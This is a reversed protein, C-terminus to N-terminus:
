VLPAWGTTRSYSGSHWAHLLVSHWPVNESINVTQRAVPTSRNQLIKPRAAVPCDLVWSVTKKAMIATCSHQNVPLRLMAAVILSESVHLWLLIFCWALRRQMMEVKTTYWCLIYRYKGFVYFVSPWGGLFDSACLVGSIPLAIFTGFQCGAYGLSVLRSRELPPVWLGWIAHM